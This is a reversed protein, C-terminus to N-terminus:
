KKATEGGELVVQMFEEETKDKDYKYNTLGGGGHITDATLGEWALFKQKKSGQGSISALRITCVKLHRLLHTTPGGASMYFPQNCYNCKAKQSGNEDTLVSFDEWVKSTRKRTTKKESIQSVEQSPQSAGENPTSDATAAEGPQAEGPQSISAEGPQTISAMDSPNSTTPM